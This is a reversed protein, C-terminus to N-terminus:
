GYATANSTMTALVMRPLVKRLMDEELQPVFRTYVEKSATVDCSLRVDVGRYRCLCLLQGQAAADSYGPATRAICDPAATRCRQPSHNVYPLWESGQGSTQVGFWDKSVRSECRDQNPRGNAEAEEFKLPLAM